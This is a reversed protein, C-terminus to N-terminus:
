APTCASYWKGVYECTMGPCCTGHLCNEWRALCGSLKGNSLWTVDRQCRSCENQTTGCWGNIDMCDKYNYSCCGAGGGGGNGGIKQTNLLRNPAGRVDSIVGKVSDNEIASMVQAPSWSPNAELYLAAVGAVHPSAMSTGSRLVSRNDIWTSIIGEGPAFVNVCPGYNSFSSRDDYNNSSAVTMAREASAPSTGCADNKTNGAAVAVFVGADVVSNVMNNMAQSYGGGLSMNVVMPQRPDNRKEKRIYDLGAILGSTSGRGESDFVRITVLEVQKAVGHTSGGIIGAVHTGHGRTDVCNGFPTYGCTPNRLDPHNAIGSDIVFAKVGRGTYKYAYNGDLPFSPEDLRDLGWSPAEQVAFEEVIQDEEIFLVDPDELMTSLQVASMNGIAAAQFQDDEYTFRFSCDILTASLTTVKDKSNTGERFVVIYEHDIRKEAQARVLKRHRLADAGLVTTIWVCFVLSAKM